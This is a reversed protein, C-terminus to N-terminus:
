WIIGILVTQDLVQKDLKRREKLLGYRHEGLFGVREPIRAMFPVLAAELSVTAWRWHCCRM